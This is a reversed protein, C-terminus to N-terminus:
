THRAMKMVVSAMGATGADAIHRLRAEAHPTRSILLAEMASVHSTAILATETVEAIADVKAVERAALCAGYAQARAIERSARREVRTSALEGFSSLVPLDSM